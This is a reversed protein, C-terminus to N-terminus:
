GPFPLPENQHSNIWIDPKLKGKRGATGWSASSGAPKFFSQDALVTDWMINWWFLHSVECSLLHLFLWTVIPESPGIVYQVIWFSGSHYFSRNFAYSLHWSPSTVKCSHPVIRGFTFYLSFLYGYLARDRVPFFIHRPVLPHFYYYDWWWYLCGSPSNTNLSQPNLPGSAWLLCAEM